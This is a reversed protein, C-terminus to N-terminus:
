QDLFSFFQGCSTRSCSICRCCGRYTLSQFSQSLPSLFITESLLIFAVSCCLVYEVTRWMGWVCAEDCVCVCACAYVSVCMWLVPVTYLLSLFYMWHIVNLLSGYFNSVSDLNIPLYELVCFALMMIPNLYLLFSTVKDNLLRWWASSQKTMMVPRSNCSPKSFKKNNYLFRIGMLHCSRYWSIAEGNSRM